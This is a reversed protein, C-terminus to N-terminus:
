VLWLAEGAACEAETWIEEVRNQQGSFSKGGSALSFRTSIRKEAQLWLHYAARTQGQAVAATLIERQGLLGMVKQALFFM